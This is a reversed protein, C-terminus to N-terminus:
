SLVVWVVAVAMLVLVVVAVIGAARHLKLDAESHDLCIEAGAVRRRDAGVIVGNHWVNGLETVDEHTVYTRPM